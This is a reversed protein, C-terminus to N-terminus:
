GRPSAAIDTGAPSSLSGEPAFILALAALYVLAFLMFPGYARSSRSTSLPLTIM